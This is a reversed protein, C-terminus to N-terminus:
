WEVKTMAERVDDTSIQALYISTTALSAHGLQRQIFPVPVGNKALNVAFTHRFGHPHIRKTWGAKAALRQLLARVYTAHQKAGAVTCFLPSTGSAATGARVELWRRVAEVADPGTSVRRAKDGKGHRVHIEAKALDFDRPQLDLAENIRLGSQWLTAILAFNRVATPSKRSTAALLARMEDRSYVEKEYHQGKLPSSEGARPMM